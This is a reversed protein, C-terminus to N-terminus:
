KDNNSNLREIYDLYRDYTENDVGLFIADERKISLIYIGEKKIIRSLMLNDIDGQVNSIMKLSDERTIIISRTTVFTKDKGTSREIEQIDISAPVSYCSYLASILIIHIIISIIHQM